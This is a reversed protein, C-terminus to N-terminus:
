RFAANRSATVITQIFGILILSPEFETHTDPFTLIHCISECNPDNKQRERDASFRSGFLFWGGAVSLGECQGRPTM